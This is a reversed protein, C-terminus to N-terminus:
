GRREPSSAHPECPLEFWFTSGKDVKTDVGIDGGHAETLTKSIYLGLGLSGTHQGQPAEGQRYADFLIPVEQEAIGPGSDHVSFRIRDDATVSAALVIEGGRPTVKLANGVLNALIQLVRDRDAVIRAHTPDDIRLTIGAREAPEAFSEITLQLLEHSDTPSLELQLGSAQARATDLLDDVLRQMRQAAHEIARLHALDDGHEHRLVDLGLMITNLPSRLDHSVMDLLQKRATAAENAAQRATQVAQFQRALRRAVLVGLGICLLITFGSAVLVVTGTTSAAQETRAVTEDVHVTNARQLTDLAGELEDRHPALRREYLRELAALSTVEARDRIVDDVAALYDALEGAVKARATLNWEEPHIASLTASIERHTQNMKEISEPDGTLLYGRAVASLQAFQVRLQYADLADGFSHRMERQTERTVGLLAVAMTCVIAVLAIEALIGIALQTRFRMGRVHTM